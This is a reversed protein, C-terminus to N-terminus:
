VLRKAFRREFFGTNVTENRWRREFDFGVKKCAPIKAIEM